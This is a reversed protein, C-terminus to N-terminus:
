SCCGGKKKGDGSKLSLALEMERDERERLLSYCVLTREVHCKLIYMYM